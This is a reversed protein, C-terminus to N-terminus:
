FGNFSGSSIMSGLSGFNSQSPQAQSLRTWGPTSSPEPIAKKCTHYIYQSNDKSGPIKRTHCGAEGTGCGIDYELRWDYKGKGRVRNEVMNTSYLNSVFRVKTRLSDSLEPEILACDDICLWQISPLPSNPPSDVNTSGPTVNLISPSSPLAIVQPTSDKPRTIGFPSSQPAPASPRFAGSQKISVSSKLHKLGNPTRSLVFRRLPGSTIESNGAISLAILNPLVDNKPDGKRELRELFKNDLSCYSVNLFKLSPLKSLIPSLLDLDISCKGIDLSLLNPLADILGSTDLHPAISYSGIPHISWLDLHKLNPVKIEYLGLNRMSGSLSFSELNELEVDLPKRVQNWKYARSEPHILMTTSDWNVNVMEFNMLKPFHCLLETHDPFAAMFYCNKLRLTHVSQLHIRSNETWFPPDDEIPRQELEPNIAELRTDYTHNYIHEYQGGELDLEKLLSADFSLLRYVLDVPEYTQNLQPIYKIKLYELQKFEGQWQRSFKIADGIITLKKVKGLYPKLLQSIDTLRSIEFDEKIVIEKINGKTRNICNKTKDLIRKKGLILTSWLTTTNTLIDRWHKCAGSMKISFNSQDISGIEAINIIIDPSLMHIFNIKAKKAQLKGLEIKRKEEASKSARIKENEHQAELLDGKYRQLLRYLQDNEARTPGVKCAKTMVRVAADYRHLKQLVKAQRYHGRYDEPEDQIMLQTIEYATQHWEPMETLAKAKLDLLMINRKGAFSIAKDIQERAGAWDKEALARRSHRVYEEVISRNRVIGNNTSKKNKSM